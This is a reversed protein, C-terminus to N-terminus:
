VLEGSKPGKAKANTEKATIRAYYDAGMLMANLVYQGTAYSQTIAVDLGVETDRSHELLLRALFNQKETRSQSYTLVTDSTFAKSIDEAAHLSRVTHKEAGERNVQSPCVMAAHREQGMGRLAVFNEGIGIRHDKGNGGIKMLDPYDVIILNPQFGENHSLQDLYNELMGVTMTGSPFGKIVIRETLHEFNNMKEQLVRRIKPNDLAKRGLKPDDKDFLEAEINKTQWNSARNNHKVFSPRLIPVNYQRLGFLAQVYRMMVQEESMELTVHLVNASQLAAMRAIHTCFWSKGSNKFALYLLMTGPRLRLGRRDFPDIGLKLGDEKQDLFSLARAQDNLRVGLDIKRPQFKAMEHILREVETLNVDKKLLENGAKYTNLRYCQRRAFAAAQSIMFEPNIGKIKGKMEKHFDHAAKIQEDQAPLSAILTPMHEMGPSKGKYQSRYRYVATAIIRFTGDFMEPDLVSAVETGHRDTYCLLALLQEQAKPELREEPIDLM